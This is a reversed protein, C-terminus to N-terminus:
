GPRPEPILVGDGNGDGGTGWFDLQDEDFLTLQEGLQKPPPMYM